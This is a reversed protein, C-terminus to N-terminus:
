CLQRRSDFGLFDWQADRWVAFRGVMGCPRDGKAVNKVTEANRDRTAILDKSRGRKQDDEAGSRRKHVQREARCRRPRTPHIELPSFCGQLGADKGLNSRRDMAIMGKRSGRAVPPLRPLVFFIMWKTCANMIKRAHAIVIAMQVLPSPISPRVTQYQIRTLVIGDEVSSNESSDGKTRPRGLPKM